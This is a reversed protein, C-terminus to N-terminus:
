RVFTYTGCLDPSNQMAEFTMIPANDGSFFAVTLTNGAVYTAMWRTDERGCLTNHNLFRRSAPIEVGYLQGNGAADVAVDFAASVEAPKLLRVPSLLFSTFNISLKSGSITIDGTISAATHSAARWYGKEPQQASGAIACVLTVALASVNLFRRM